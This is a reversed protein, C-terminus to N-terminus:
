LSLCWLPWVATWSCNFMAFKAVICFVEVVSMWSAATAPSAVLHCCFDISAYSYTPEPPWNGGLTRGWLGSVLNQGEEVVTTEGSFRKQM